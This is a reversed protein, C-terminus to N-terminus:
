YDLVRGFGVLRSSYYGGDPYSDIMVGGSVTAHIMKFSGKRTPSVEIILSVHGVNSGISRGNFFALDGPRIEDITIRKSQEYQESSSRPLYVSFHGFVYDLYGSCDFGSPTNGGYKYRTGQYKKAYAIIESAKRSPTVPAAQPKAQPNDQKALPTETTIEPSDLKQANKRREGLRAPRSVEGRSRATGPMVAVKRGGSSTTKMSACSAAFVSGAILLVLLCSHHLRRAM